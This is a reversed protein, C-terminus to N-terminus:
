RNLLVKEHNWELENQLRVIYMGNPLNKPVNWKLSSQNEIANNEYVIRGQVDMILLSNYDGSSFEFNLVQNFPNPFIEYKNESNVDDIGIPLICGAKPDMSEPGCEKPSASYKMVYLGAEINNVGLDRKTQGPAATAAMFDNKDNVHGLQHAHGLEHVAVTELDYQSSGPNGEDYNWNRDPDFTM